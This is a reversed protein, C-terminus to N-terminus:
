KVRLLENVLEFTENTRQDFVSAPNTVLSMIKKYMDVDSDRLELIFYAFDFLAVERAADGLMSMFWIPCSPVPLMDIDNRWLPFSLIRPQSIRWYFSETFQAISNSVASSLIWPMEWCFNDVWESYPHIRERIYYVSLEDWVDFAIADVITDISSNLEQFFWKANGDFGLSEAYKLVETWRGYIMPLMSTTLRTSAIHYAINYILVDADNITDVRIAEFFVAPNHELVHLLRSTYLCLGLGFADINAGSRLHYFDNFLDVVYEITPNDELLMYPMKRLWAADYVFNLTSVYIVVNRGYRKNVEIAYLFAERDELFALWAKEFLYIDPANMNYLQHNIEHIIQLIDNTKNLYNNDNNATLCLDDFPAHITEYSSKSCASVCIMFFLLLLIRKM